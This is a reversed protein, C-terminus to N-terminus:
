DHDGLFIAFQQTGADAFVAFRGTQRLFFQGFLNINVGDIHPLDLTAIPHGRYIDEQPNCLRQLNM